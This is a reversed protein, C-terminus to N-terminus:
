VIFDDKGQYWYLFEEFTIKGDSNKDLLLLAVELQNLTLTTGLSAVLTVLETSDLAGSNDKDFEKFKIELHQTDLRAAKMDDLSSIVQRSSQFIIIGVITTYVGILFQLIGGQCLILLGIFVYFAARGYPRSLFLAERRLASIYRETMVKEKYELISLVLGFIFIYISIVASFPSLSLLNSFISLLSSAMILVGAILGAVKWTWQGEDAYKKFDKFKEM